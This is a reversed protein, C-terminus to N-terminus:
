GVQVPSLEEAAADRDVAPKRILLLAALGAVVLLVASARYVAAYGELAAPAGAPAGSAGDAAARVFITTFVALAISGGVQMASNVLASAAGADHRAIGTLAVNQVPIVVFALGIGVLVMGPLVEGWYTGEPTLRALLLMGAAAVLPGITMVVRGGFRQFARAAVPATAMTAVTMALAGTGARLPSLGLVIQLHFAQYLTTGIYVTGVVAQVLFAGARTRDLVVRLPLLPQAVTSEIRVFAVLLLVGVALFAVTDVAGWGGEALSFGYVLSALGLTVTVAGVIDYRNEGEARSETLFLRAGLLGIAAFVLNVLLCWRWGAFETLVGGLALGIAAGTGAVTGFVAFATGRERGAPFTVTLLSLAAPALLAAFAGQLGRAAVLETGSQAVGGWASALGFGIMGILYGRKRGGYDAIRGGLLLLAGFALAYATVVWQRQTDTMGLDAQAHPLAVNVITADLVVVLQTMSLVALAWWRRPDPRTTSSLASM